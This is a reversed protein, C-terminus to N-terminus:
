IDTRRLESTILAGDYRLRAFESEYEYGAPGVAATGRILTGTILVTEPVDDAQAVAMGQAQASIANAM